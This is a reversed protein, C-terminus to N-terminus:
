TGLTLFKKGIVEERKLGFLKECKDNIELVTGSNDLYIIEDNANEFITKYKEESERLLSVTKELKEIKQAWEEFSQKSFASVGRQYKHQIEEPHICLYDLTQSPNAHNFTAMIELLSIGSHVIQQYGFTKRLSPGGYSGKLNVAACWKKIMNNVSPVTLSGYRGSFLYETPGPGNKKNKQKTQILRQIAESCSKNLMIERFGSGRQVKIKIDDTFDQILIQGVRIKLMESVRLDTSIGLTFLALNRPNDALLNEIDRIDEMRKIPEAKITSGRSPHNFNNGKKMACIKIM